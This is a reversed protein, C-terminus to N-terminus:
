NIRMGYIEVPGEREYVDEALKAFGLARAFWRVQRNGVPGAGWVFDAQEALMDLMGRAADLARKGRCSPLFMLHAQYERPGTEEFAAVADRGNSLVVCNEVATTWDMEAADERYDIFPRVADHNAIRNTLTATVERRIM